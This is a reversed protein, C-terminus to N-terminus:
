SRVYNGQDLRLNRRVRIYLQGNRSKAVHYIYENGTNGNKGFDTEDQQYFEEVLSSINNTMNPSENENQRFDNENMTQNFSDGWMARLRGMAEFELEFLSPPEEDDFLTSDKMSGNVSGNITHLSDDDAIPIDIYIDNQVASKRNQMLLYEIQQQSLKFQTKNKNLHKELVSFTNHFGYSSDAPTTTISRLFDSDRDFNNSQRSSNSHRGYDFSLYEESLPGGIFDDMSYFSQYESDNNISTVTSNLESELPTAPLRKTFLTHYEEDTDFTKATKVINETPQFTTMSSPPPPPLPTSSSSKMSLAATIKNMINTTMKKRM